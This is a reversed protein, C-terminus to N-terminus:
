VLVLEGLSQTLVTVESKALASRAKASASPPVKTGDVGHNQTWPSHGLKTPVVTVFSSLRWM